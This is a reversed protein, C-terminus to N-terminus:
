QKQLYHFEFPKINLFEPNNSIDWSEAPTGFIYEGSPMMENEPLDYKYNIAISNATSRFKALQFTKDFNIQYIHTDIDIDSETIIIMGKYDFIYSPCYLNNSWHYSLLFPTIHHIGIPIFPKDFSIKQFLYNTSPLSLTTEALGVGDKYNLQKPLTFLNIPQSKYVFSELTEIRAYHELNKM